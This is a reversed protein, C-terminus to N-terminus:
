NGVIIKRLSKMDRELEEKSLDRAFFGLEDQFFQKFTFTVVKKPEENLFIMPSTAWTEDGREHLAFSAIGRDNLFNKVFDIITQGRRLSTIGRSTETELRGGDVGTISTGVVKIFTRKKM